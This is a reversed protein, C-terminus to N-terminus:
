IAHLVAGARRALAADSSLLLMAHTRQACIVTVGTSRLTWAGEPGRLEHADAAEPFPQSSQFITLRVGSPTTYAFMTVPVGNLQGAAAGTLRLALPTLQPPSGAPVATGPLRDAHYSAVAAAIVTRPAASDTAPMTHRWPHVLAAAGALVAVVAAAAAQRVIRSTLRRAAAPLTAAAVPAAAPTAACSTEASM